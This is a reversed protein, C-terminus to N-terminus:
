KLPQRHKNPCRRYPKSSTRPSNVPIEKREAGQCIRYIGLLATPLSQANCCGFFYPNTQLSPSLKLPEFRWVNNPFSELLSCPPDFCRHSQLFQYHPLPSSIWDTNAILGLFQSKSTIGQLCWDHWRRLFSTLTSGGGVCVALAGSRLPYPM